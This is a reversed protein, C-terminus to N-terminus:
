NSDSSAIVDVGPLRGLVAVLRQPSSGSPLRLSMELEYRGKGLKRSSIASLEAGLRTAHETVSGLADLTALELRLDLIRSGRPRLRRIIANLPGLSFVVLVTAVTGLLYEGSGVAVGVAATAWLSAATTLGKVSAGMQLIAGAGLFGIGTVIQAAIRTPDFGAGLGAQRVAANGYGSIVAFLTAGLAVLLHTRMGAPHDHIERELGVVAGRAAGVALRLSLEFQLSPDLPM